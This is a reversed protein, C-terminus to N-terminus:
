RFFIVLMNFMQRFLDCSHIFNEFMNDAFIWDLKNNSSTELSWGVISFRLSYAPKDKTNKRKFHWKYVLYCESSTKLSIEFFILSGIPSSKSSNSPKFDWVGEFLFKFNTSSSSLEILFFFHKWDFSPEDNDQRLKIQRLWLLRM